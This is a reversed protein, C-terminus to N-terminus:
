SEDEKRPPVWIELSRDKMCDGIAVQGLAAAKRLCNDCVNIELYQCTKGDADIPDFVTCGYHGYSQFALGDGPQNEFEVEEVHKWVFELQAGCVICPLVKELKMDGGINVLTKDM